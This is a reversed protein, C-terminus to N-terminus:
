SPLPAELDGKTEMVVEGSIFLLLLRLGCTGPAVAPASSNERRGERGRGAEPRV